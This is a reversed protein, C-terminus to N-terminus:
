EGSSGFLDPMAPEDITREDIWYAIIKDKDLLNGAIIAKQNTSYTGAIRDACMKEEHYDYYEDHPGGLSLSELTVWLIWIPMNVRKEITKFVRSKRDTSGILEGIRSRVREVARDYEADVLALAEDPTIGRGDHLIISPELEGHGCCCNATYIGLRNMTDILDALCSDIAKHEWRLKGTHSLYAPIPVYVLTTEGHNCM